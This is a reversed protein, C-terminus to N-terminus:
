LFAYALIYRKRAKCDMTNDGFGAEIEIDEAEIKPLEEGNRTQRVKRSNQPPLPKALRRSRLELYCSDPNSPPTVAASSQLRQLALTKARTRVGLPSQSVEMLAVEGTAKDKRMCKGMAEQSSQAKRQPIGSRFAHLPFLPTM